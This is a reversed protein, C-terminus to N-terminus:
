LCEMQLMMLHLLHEWKLHLQIALVLKHRELIPQQQRHLLQLIALQRAPHSQLILRISMLRM